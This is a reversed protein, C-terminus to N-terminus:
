RAHALYSFRIAVDNNELWFAFHKALGKAQKKPRL